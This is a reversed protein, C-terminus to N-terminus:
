DEKMCVKKWISEWGDNVADQFGFVFDPTNKKDKRTKVFLCRYVLHLHHVPDSGPVLPHYDSREQEEEKILRLGQKLLISKAMGPPKPFDGLTDQIRTDSIDVLRPQIMTVHWIYGGEKLARASLELTKQYGLDSPENSGSAGYLFIIDASKGSDIFENLYTDNDATHVVAKNKLYPDSVKQMAIMNGQESFDVHHVFTKPIRALDATFGGLGAGMNLIILKQDSNQSVNYVFELAGPRSKWSREFSSNNEYQKDWHSSDGRQQDHPIHDTIYGFGPKYINHESPKEGPLALSFEGSLKSNRNIM